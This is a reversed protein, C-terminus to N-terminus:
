TSRRCRPRASASAARIGAIMSDYERDNCISGAFSLSLEYWAAYEANVGIPQQGKIAFAQAIFLSRDLGALSAVHRLPPQRSAYLGRVDSSAPQCEAQLIVAGQPLSSITAVANDMVPDFSHWLM